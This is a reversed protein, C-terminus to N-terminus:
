ASRQREEEEALRSSVSPGAWGSGRYLRDREALGPTPTEDLLRIVRADESDPVKVTVLVGGRRIGEAYIEADPTDIGLTGLADVIGGTVGGAVAGALAGTLTAALWGAAVVPGLGPIAMLGIGALAGAGGGLVAGIGSGTVAAGAGDRAVDDPDSRPSVWGIADDDIGATRLRDMVAWADDASDYLRTHTSM